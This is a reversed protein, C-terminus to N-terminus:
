LVKIVIYILILAVFTVGAIMLRKELIKKQRYVLLEEPVSASTSSKVGYKSRLDQLGQDTSNDSTSLNTTGLSLSTDKLGTDQDIVPPKEKKVTQSELEMAKKRLDNFHNRCTKHIAMEAQDEKPLLSVELEMQNLLYDLNDLQQTVEPLRSKSERGLKIMQVLDSVKNYKDEYEQGLQYINDSSM